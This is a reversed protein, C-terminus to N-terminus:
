RSLRSPDVLTLVDMKISSRVWNKPPNPNLAQTPSKGLYTIKWAWVEGCM